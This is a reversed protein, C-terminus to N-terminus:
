FLLMKKTFTKGRVRMTYFYVGKSVKRGNEDVSNWKVLYVGPKLVRDLLTKVKQGVVNYITIEVRGEAKLGFRIETTRRFPNPTNQALFDIRPIRLDLEKLGVNVLVKSWEVRYFVGATDEYGLIKDPPWHTTDIASSCPINETHLLLSILEHAGTPLPNTGTGDYAHFYVKAGLQTISFEWGSPFNEEIFFLSDIFLTDKPYVIPISIDSAPARDNRLYISLTLSDYSGLELYTIPNGESDAVWVSDPNLLVEIQAGAWDPIYETDSRGKYKFHYDPPYSTTDLVFSGGDIGVFTMEAIVNTKRLLSYQPDMVSAEFLVKGTGDIITDYVSLQWQDPSPFNNRLFDRFIMDVKTADYTIPFTLYKANEMLNKVVLYVTLTEGKYISVSSLHTGSTDSAVWASDPNTGAPYCLISQWEPYYDVATVVTDSDSIEWQNGTYYLHSGGGFIITDIMTTGTEKVYLKIYGIHNTGPPLQFPFQPPGVLTWGSFCVKGTDDYLTDSVNLQWLGMEGYPFTSSDMYTEVLEFIAANYYLPFFFAIASDTANKMFLHLELTDGTAIEQYMLKTAGTTDPSLWASDPNQAYLAGLSLLVVVISGVRM